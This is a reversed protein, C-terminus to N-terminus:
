KNSILSANTLEQALRYTKGKETKLELIQTGYRVKCTNGLRSLIKVDKLKGEEWNMDVEFGGRAVLGYISGKQWVKPLAPLLHIEGAHSQLLMETIGATAGFNGDIQFPPHTDFLNPLTSKQLLAVLNSYAAESDQLRSFFNIIWARSWGTHGGGHALRYDITKRAAQLLEPQKSTIEKGPHLGYLHSIHRHGPEPEEFEETWEMIRGDKGIQTPALRALISQLKKQLAADKNLVKGAAITNTLLDRIIMHDMTPGMVMTAVAGNKTKFTNEPSISPGSVLKRTIPNETLWAACFEAVDKMAPYALTDLYSKDETFLYHEWLHQASWALGM